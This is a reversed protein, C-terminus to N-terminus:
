RPVPRARLSGSSSNTTSAWGACRPASASGTSGYTGDWPPALSVIRGVKTAGGGFKVYNNAVVTGQSHGGPGGQRRRDRRAGPGRVGRAPETSEDIPLMGGIGSLPAPLDAFNGYTVAFVCFGENALMPAYAAWNTQRNGATGHVLVVPTPHEATPRCITM